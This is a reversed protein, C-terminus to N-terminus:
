RAFMGAVVANLRNREFSNLALLYAATLGLAGSLLGASLFERLATGVFLALPRMLMVGAYTAALVIASRLTVERFFTMRSEGIMRCAVAPLGLGCIAGDMIALGYVFGTMGHSHALVYGLLFGTVGSASTFWLVVRQHNSASMLIATCVSHSQSCALVVFALMLGPDYAVRGHTWLDVVRDGATLLFVALCITVTMIVKTALLHLRRLSEMEARAELSTFEPWVALQVTNTAQRIVNSLTRLSAFTVLATAGFMASVVLTSGHVALASVLQLALFALSPGLFRLALRWDAHSLGLKVDPRRGSVDVCVFISVLILAALQAAALAPLRGGSLAVTITVILNLLFRANAIMQGRAYENITRYIGLVMGYGVSYAMQFSLLAAVWAATTASTERLQLWHTLPAMFIIPLALLFGVLPLLFNVLLGTHLVRTYEDMRDLAHFQNLRNVVYTQMGLDLNSLYAVMASLALWEGYTQNGLTSLLVPVQAFQGIVNFVQGLINALTGKTVRSFREIGATVM